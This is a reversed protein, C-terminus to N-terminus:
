VIEYAETEAFLSMSLAELEDKNFPCMYNNMRDTGDSSFNTLWHLKSAEERTLLVAIAVNEENDTHDFELIKAM